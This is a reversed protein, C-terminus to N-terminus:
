SRGESSRRLRDLKARLAARAAPDDARSIAEELFEIAVEPSELQGISKAALRAVMAPAGPLKSAAIFDQLADSQDHLFYSANFGRLYRMYWNDPHQQIGLTLFDNARQPQHVEWALMQSCFLYPHEMEPNLSVVLQCYHNLWEYSQDQQYHKGFYSVTQFWLLQALANSYGFSMFRLATGNPLYLVEQAKDEKYITEELSVKVRAFATLAFASGALLCILISRKM